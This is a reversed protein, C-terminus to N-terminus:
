MAMDAIHLMYFLKENMLTEYVYVLHIFMSISIIIKNINTERVLNYSEQPYSDLKIYHNSNSSAVDPVMYIFSFIYM